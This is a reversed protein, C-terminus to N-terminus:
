SLRTLARCAARAVFYATSTGWQTITPDDPDELGDPWVEGGDIVELDAFYALLAYVGAITTPETSMFTLAAERALNSGEEEDRVAAIWRPDDTEVITEEGGDFNSKRQRKPLYEELACKRGVRDGFEAEAQRHVEIAAFIPDPEAAAQAVPLGLAAAAPMAATSAVLARRTLTSKSM